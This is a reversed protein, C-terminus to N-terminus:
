TKNVLNLTHCAVIGATETRLVSDGLSVPVFGRQGALEIEGSTFDGEPGILVCYTANIHAVQGLLQRQNEDAVHAIFKQTDTVQTVFQSFPMVEHLAPLMAKGSQKMAAVAIKALREPKIEKRESRECRLFSIQEVGIEVCKEVMWEMRDVNKTPAVAIHVSFARKGVNRKTELIEVQCRKVDTSALRVRYLNGKGDTVRLTEGVDMRLVKLVHRAEAEPLQPANEDFHPHYFLPMAPM